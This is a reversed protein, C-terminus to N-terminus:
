LALHGLLSGTLDEGEEMCFNWFTQAVLTLAKSRPYALYWQRRIPFGEVDLIRLPGEVGELILATASLVSVGLGAVIAHKIAENSGLAMRVQPEVNHAQFLRHVADRIGSGSERMIFPERALREVPINRQGVLPHDHRALVVLCNPAFPAAEIALEQPLTQGLIYLDDENNALREIVQERNVVSLNVDIGPYRRSFEALIRPAFYQATTLATLRLRGARLGKMDAIKMELNSFASFINRSANYLERGADTLEVTRGVQEFLQLGVEDSLKKIQMSVTPQTLYLEEAARTFSGHRVIAEFVQLQRLTIHRALM